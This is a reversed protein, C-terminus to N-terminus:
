AGGRGSRPRTGAPRAAGPAGAAGGAPARQAWGSGEAGPHHLPARRRPAAVFRGLPARGRGLRRSRTEPPALQEEPTPAAVAPLRSLEPPPNRWGWGGLALQGGAQTGNRAETERGFRELVRTLYVCHTGSPNSPSAAGTWARRPTSPRAGARRQEPDQSQHRTSQPRGRRGEREGGRPLFPFASSAAESLPEAPCTEESVRPTRLLLVPYM